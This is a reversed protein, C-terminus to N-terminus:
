ESHRFRKNFEGEFISVTEMDWNTFRIQRLHSDPHSRCFALATSFMVQACREKPFGFIGSSIAPLSISSLELEEAKLLSNHVAEELEKDKKAMNEQRFCIPGVAHIIVQCEMLGPGTVAVGGTPVEGHQRVWRDSEVQVERGGARMIAGAVGAGHALHSNAANVIAGVIEATIDGHRVQISHGQPTWAEKRLRTRSRDRSPAGAEGPTSEKRRVSLTPSPQPSHGAKPNRRKLESLNSVTNAHVLRAERRRRKNSPSTEEEEEQEDGQKGQEMCTGSTRRRKAHAEQIEEDEETDEDGSEPKQSCDEPAATASNPKAEPVTGSDQKELQSAKRKRYTEFLLNQQSLSRPQFFNSIKRQDMV